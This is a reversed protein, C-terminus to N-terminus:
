MKLRKTSIIFDQLATLASTSRVLEAMNTRNKKKFFRVM